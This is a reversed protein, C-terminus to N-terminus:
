RALQEASLATDRAWARLDGSEFGDAFIPGVDLVWPERGFDPHPLTVWLSAGDVVIADIFDWPNFVPFEEVAAPLDVLRSWAGTSLSLRRIQERSARTYRWVSRGDTALREPIWDRPEVLVERTGGVSGDCRWWHREGSTWYDNVLVQAERSSGPVASWGAQVQALVEVKGSPLDLRVLADATWGCTWAADAPAPALGHLRASLPRTGVLTGDTIWSAESGVVVRGGAETLAWVPAPLLMEASSGDTGWLVSGCQAVARSAARALRWCSTEVLVRPEADAAADRALLARVGQHVGSYVLTRGLAVVPPPRDFGLPPVGVSLDVRTQTDDGLFWVAAQGDSRVCDVILDGVLTPTVDAFRRPCATPAISRTGASSGDSRWITAGEAGTSASFWVEGERAGLFRTRSSATGALDLGDFPVIASEEVRGPRAVGAEDVWPVLPELGPGLGALVPSYYPFELGPGTIRELTGAGADAQWTEYGAEAPARVLMLVRDPNGDAVLPGAPVGPFSGVIELTEGDFAWLEQPSSGYQVFYLRGGIPKPTVSESWPPLERVLRAGVAGEAWLGCGDTDCEVWGTEGWLDFPPGSIEGGVFRTGAVTGDSALLALGGVTFVADGGVEIPSQLDDIQAGFGVDMQGGYGDSLRLGFQQGLVACDLFGGPVAWVSACVLAFGTDFVGGTGLSVPESAPALRWLEGGFTPEPQKVLFADGQRAVSGIRRFSAPALRHVASGDTLWLGREGDPGLGWAVLDGDLQQVESPVVQRLLLTPPEEGEPDVKWLGDGGALVLGQPASWAWGGFAPRAPRDDEVDAVLRFGGPLAQAWAGGTAALVILVLSSHKM